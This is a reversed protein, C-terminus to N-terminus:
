AMTAVPYVGYKRGADFMAQINRVPIGDHLSHDSALIYGWGPAAVDITERVETEVEDPTGYPLTASSNINGIICVRDGYQAKVRAIDMNATRQLPHIADIGLEVADDLFDYICGCSHLAVPLGLGKIHSIIKGLAPKFVAKFQAPSILGGTSSGLDESVFFGDVGAEAMRTAGAIAFDVALQVVQEVFEPDDYLSLCINEYGMLMWATTLPGGVGGFVVVAKEGLARNMAVATDIEVLRGEAWPDPPTYSALDDRSNLPYAIPADIPWSADNQEFTTGWEDKYINDALKEPSWGSFCGFPIWVGDLGLAVTLDIADKANYAIPTRGIIETFLPRQFLFDFMPVRDVPRRHIAALFRDKPRM